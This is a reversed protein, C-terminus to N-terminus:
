VVYEYLVPTIIISLFVDSTAQAAFLHSKRLEFIGGENKFVSMIGALTTM